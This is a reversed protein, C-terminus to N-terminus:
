INLQVARSPKNTNDMTLSGMSVTGANVNLAVTANNNANLITVAGAVTLSSTAARPTLPPAANSTDGVQLSAANAAFGAPITVTNGNTVIVTDNTGPTNAPTGNGGLCGSWTAPLNWATSVLSTCTVALASGSATLICSVVLLRLTGPMGIMSHQVCHSRHAAGRLESHRAHRHHSRQDPLVNPLAVHRRLRLHQRRATRRYVNDDARSRQPLGAHSQLKDACRHVGGWGRHSTSYGGVNGGERRLVGECCSDGEVGHRARREVFEDDGGRARDPRRDPFDREDTGHWRFPHAKDNATTSSSRTTSSCQRARM